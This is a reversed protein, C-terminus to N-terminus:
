GKSLGDEIAGLLMALAEKLPRHGGHRTTTLEATFGKGLADCIGIALGQRNLGGLGISKMIPDVIETLDPNRSNATAYCADGVLAAFSIGSVTDEVNPLLLPLCTAAMENEDGLERESMPSGDPRSFVVNSSPGLKSPLGRRARLPKFVDHFIAGEAAAFSLHKAGQVESLESTLLDLELRGCFAAPAARTALLYCLMLHSGVDFGHVDRMQRVRPFSGMNVLERPIVSEPATLVQENIFAVVTACREVLLHDDLDTRHEIEVELHELWDRMHHPDNMGDDVLLDALAQEASTWPSEFNM